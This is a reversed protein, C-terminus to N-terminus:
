SADSGHEREQDRAEDPEPTPLEVCVSTGLGPASEVQIQGGIAEVRERMSSMGMSRAKPRAHPNFGVGDDITCVRLLRPEFTLRVRVESARAHKVVNNLSEQAIRFAAEEVAAPLRRDQGEIDVVIDLGERSRLAAVHKRLAALLGEEQLAMPRLQFILARM